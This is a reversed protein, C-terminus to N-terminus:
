AVPPKTAVMSARSEFQDFWAALADNGKRWDRAGHRFDIYALACGVAIQGLDLPGALHGMWRGNLAACASEVKAWQAEVWGDWQKDAPRLRGEYVMLIAADMMGDATAELTRMDWQASGAPTLKGGARADLYGCIVRSDYLAPGDPRDLAPIKSLPNKAVLEEPRSVPSLVTDVIEVDGLQGTEHLVVLVKRVYPSAPAYYLKM